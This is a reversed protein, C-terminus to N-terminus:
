RGMFIGVGDSSAQSKNWDLNDDREEMEGLFVSISSKIIGLDKRFQASMPSNSYVAVGHSTAIHKASSGGSELM